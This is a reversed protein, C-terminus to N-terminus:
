SRAPLVAAMAEADSLGLPGTLYDIIEHESYHAAFLCEVIARLDPVRSEAHDGAGPTRALNAHANGGRDRRLHPLSRGAAKEM